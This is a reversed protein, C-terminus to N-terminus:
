RWLVDKESRLIANDGPFARQRQPMSLYLGPGVELTPNGAADVVRPFEPASAALPDVTENVVPIGLFKMGSGHPCAASCICAREFECRKPHPCTKCPKM